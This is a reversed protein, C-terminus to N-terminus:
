KKAPNLLAKIQESIRFRGKADAGPLQARLTEVQKEITTRVGTASANPDGAPPLQELPVGQAAIVDNAKNNAAELDAAAKKLSEDRATVKATLDTISVQFDTSDKTLRAIETKAVAAEAELTAIRSNAATLLDAATFHSEVKMIHDIMRKIFDPLQM